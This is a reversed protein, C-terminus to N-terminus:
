PARSQSGSCQKGRAKDRWSKMGAQKGPREIHPPLPWATEGAAPPRLSSCLFDGRVELAIGTVSARSMGAWFLFIFRWHLTVKLQPKGPDGDETAVARRESPRQVLGGHYLGKSPPLHSWPLMRQWRVEGLHPPPPSKLTTRPVDRSVGARPRARVESLSHARARRRRPILRKPCQAPRHEGVSCHRGKSPPSASHVHQVSRTLARV